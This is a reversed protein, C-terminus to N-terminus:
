KKKFKINESFFPLLKAEAKRLHEHYTQTSISMISALKSLSIKRPFRYYGNKVALEFALKQKEPIEPLIKPFYVDKLHRKEIRLLQFDLLKKKWKEKQMEDILGELIHRNWAAINWYEIGEKIVVPQPLYLEPDYLLEYFEEEEKALLVIRDEDKEFREVKKNNKLERAFKEKDEDEGELLHISLIHIRNTKKYRDVPYFYDIVKYKYTLYSYVNDVNRVKFKLNWMISNDCGPKYFKNIM